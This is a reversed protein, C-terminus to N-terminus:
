RGAYEERAPCFECEYAGGAYVEAAAIATDKDVGFARGALAVPLLGAAAVGKILDRRHICNQSHLSEKM